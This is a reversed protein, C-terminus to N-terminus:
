RHEAGAISSFLSCVCADGDRLLRDGCFLAALLLDGHLREDEEGAREAEEDREGQREFDGDVCAPWFRFFSSSSSFTSTVDSESGKAEIFIAEWSLM